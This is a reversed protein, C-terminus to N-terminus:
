GTDCVAGQAGVAGARGASGSGSVATRATQASSRRRWPQSSIKSLASSMSWM